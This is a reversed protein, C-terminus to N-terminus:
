MISDKALISDSFYVLTLQSSHLAELKQKELKVCLFQFSFSLFKSFCIFNRKILKTQSIYWHGLDAVASCWVSTPKFLLIKNGWQRSALFGFDLHQCLWAGEPVQPSDKRAEDQSRKKKRAIKPKRQNASADCQDEM